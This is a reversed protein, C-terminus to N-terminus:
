GGPNHSSIGAESCRFQRRELRRLLDLCVERSESSGLEFDLVQKQGDADIGIAVIATQDKSLVLGDLMLVVWDRGSLDCSRLEEVFRHGAEQWLRSVSSRGTGHTEGVVKGAERTSAGAKLAEIISAHLEGPDSASEYSSLVVEESSGDATRKRVRPRVVEERKGDIQIRGPSNGSRYSEGGSPQHKPGCLLSVEEAMVRCVLERVQDRVFRRFVEGAESGSAQGMKGFLSFDSM